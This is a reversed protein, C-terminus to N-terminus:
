RYIEVRPEGQVGARQMAAELERSTLLGHAQPVTAFQRLILVTNPADVLRHVSEAIVGWQQQLESLEDYVERFADYDQVEHRIALLAMNSM